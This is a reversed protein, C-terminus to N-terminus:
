ILYRTVDVRNNHGSLILSWNNDENQVHVHWGAGDDGPKENLSPLLAVINQLPLLLIFDPTGCALGVQAHRAVSIGKLHRDRLNWWFRNHGYEKSVLCCVGHMGDASFALRGKKQTLDSGAQLSIRSICAEWSPAALIHSHVAPLPAPGRLAERQQTAVSGAFVSVSPVIHEALIAQLVPLRLREIEAAQPADISRLVRTATDLFRSTDDLNMEHEHAVHNRWERLEFILARESVSLSTAFVDSYRAIIVKLLAQLDWHAVGLSPARDVHRMWGSGFKAQMEREVFPYLGAKVLDRCRKVVDDINISQNTNPMRKYLIRPSCVIGYM